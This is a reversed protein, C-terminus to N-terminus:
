ARDLQYALNSVSNAISILSSRTLRSSRKGSASTYVLGSIREMGQNIHNCLEEDSMQQAWEPESRNVPVPAPAEPTKSPANYGPVALPQAGAPLPKDYPELVMEDGDPGVHTKWDKM